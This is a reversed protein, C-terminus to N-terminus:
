TLAVHRDICNCVQRSSSFLSGFGVATIHRPYKCQDIMDRVFADDLNFSIIGVVPGAKTDMNLLGNYIRDLLRLKGNLEDPTRKGAKCDYFEGNHADCTTWVCVDLREPGQPIANISVAVDGAKKDHFDDSPYKEFVKQEALCELVRGRRKGILDADATHYLELLADIIGRSLKRSMKGLVVDFSGRDKAVLLLAGTRCWLDEDNAALLIRAVDEAPALDTTPSSTQLLTVQPVPSPM